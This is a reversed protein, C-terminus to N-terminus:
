CCHVHNAYCFTPIYVVAKHVISLYIFMFIILSRMLTVALSLESNFTQTSTTRSSNSNAQSRESIRWVSEVAPLM